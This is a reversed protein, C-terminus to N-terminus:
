RASASPSQRWASTAPSHPLDASLDLLRGLLAALQGSRFAGAIFGDCFREGRQIRLAMMDIDDLSAGAIWALDDDQRGGATWWAQYNAPVAGIGAEALVRWYAGEVPDYVSCPMVVAGDSRAAPESWRMFVDAPMSRLRAGIARAEAMWAAHDFTPAARQSM